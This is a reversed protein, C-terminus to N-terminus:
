LYLKDISLNQNEILNTIATKMSLGKSPILDSGFSKRSPGLEPGISPRKFSM